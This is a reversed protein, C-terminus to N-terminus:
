TSVLVLAVGQVLPFAPLLVCTDALQNWGSGSHTDSPLSTLTFM